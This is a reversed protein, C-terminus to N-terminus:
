NNTDNAENYLREYETFVADIIDEDLVIEFSSSGDEKATVEFVFAEDEEMDEFLEVPQMIVFFRGDHAIGAIEIFDIDEGNASRLTVIDNDYNQEEAMFVEKEEM